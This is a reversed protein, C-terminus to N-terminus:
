GLPLGALRDQNAQAASAVLDPVALSGLDGERRSRLSV